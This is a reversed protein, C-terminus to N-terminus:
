AGKGSLGQHLLFRECFSASDSASSHFGPLVQLAGSGPCSAGEACFECQNGSLYWGQVCRCLDESIAGALLQFPGLMLIRTVHVFAHHFTKLLVLSLLSGTWKEKM